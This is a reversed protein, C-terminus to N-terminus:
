PASSAPFRGPRSRSRTPRLRHTRAPGTSQRVVFQPEIAIERVYEGRDAIRDLLTSASSETPRLLPTTGSVKVTEGGAGVQLRLEQSTVNGVLVRVLAEVDHFGKATATLSYTGPMLALFQYLGARDTVASQQLGTGLNQVAVSAGPVVAGRQDTVRGGIAGTLVANQAAVQLVSALVFLASFLSRTTLLSPTAILLRFSKSNAKMSNVQVSASREHMLQGNM